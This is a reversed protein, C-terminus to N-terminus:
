AKLQILPSIQSVCVKEIALQFHIDSIPQTTSNSFSATVHIKNEGPNRRSSFEIKITSNHVVIQSTSPLTDEPLASAFDWEDDAAPAPASTSAPTTRSPAPKPTQTISLSQLDLLSSSSPSPAHSTQAQRFPSSTRSTSSVLSAFPDVPPTAAPKQSSVSSPIPSHTPPATFTASMSGTSFPDPPQVSQQVSGSRFYSFPIQLYLPRYIGPGPSPSLAIGGGPGQFEDQFSLGLLDGQASPQSTQGVNASDSASPNGNSSPEFDLDILSLENAANKAVGTTTGLTGKPIQAAGAVDGAKVLKYREITRHISDNIQLLKSVAEHDDSEEECMKQIKPHASQLANALEQMDQNFEFGGELKSANRVEFVDGEIKDGPKFNQLMEELIKAKQQVKSVEEAAKARYDTKHRTDYGAMIKMLRNAERLDEPGGRRILEQLKASQAEREEEEM